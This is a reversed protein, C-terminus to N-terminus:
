VASRDAFQFQLEYLSERSQVCAALM